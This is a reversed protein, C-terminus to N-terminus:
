LVGALVLNAQARYLSHMRISRATLLVCAGLCLALVYASWALMAPTFGYLLLPFAEGPVLRPSTRVLGHLPDTFALAAFAALPLALLTRRRAPLAGPRGTYELAFAVMAPPVPVLALFQVNDWFLKGALGRSVLELVFGLTCAAQGLAVVAYPGAGPRGRRRWCLLGVWASLAASALCPLLEAAAAGTM